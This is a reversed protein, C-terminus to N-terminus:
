PRARRRRKPRWPAAAIATAAPHAGDNGSGAVTKPGDSSRSTRRARLAQLTARFFDAILSVVLVCFLALCGGILLVNLLDPLWVLAPGAHM